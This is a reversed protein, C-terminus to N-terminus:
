PRHEERLDRVEVSLFHSIAVRIAVLIALFLLDTLTRSIATHIIDSVIFIELGALIYRGLEIRVRDITQWRRQEAERIEAPLFGILFRVLGVLMVAMAILDIGVAVWELAHFLDPALDRVSGQGSSSLGLDSM